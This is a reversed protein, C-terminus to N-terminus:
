KWFTPGAPGPPATPTAPATPRAQSGSAPRPPTPATPRGIAGIPPLAAARIIPATRAPSAAEPTAAPQSEAAQKAPEIAIVTEAQSGNAATTPESPTPKSPSVPEDPFSLANFRESVTSITSPRNTAEEVAQERSFKDAFGLYRAAEAHEPLMSLTKRFWFSAEAYRKGIYHSM